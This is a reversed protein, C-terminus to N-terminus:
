VLLITPLTLHTYSVAAATPPTPTTPPRPPASSSPTTARSDAGLVVGHEFVVGALTTARTQRLLLALAVLRRAAGM